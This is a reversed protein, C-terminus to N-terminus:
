QLVLQSFPNKILRALKVTVLVQELADYIGRLMTWASVIDTPFKSHLGHCDRILVAQKTISEWAERELGVMREKQPFLEDNFLSWIARNIKDLTQHYLAINNARIHQNVELAGIQEVVLSEILRQLGDLDTVASESVKDPSQGFEAM